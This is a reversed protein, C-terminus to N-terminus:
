DDARPPRPALHLHLRRIQRDTAVLDRELTVRPPDGVPYACSPCQWLGPRLEVACRPCHGRSRAPGRAGAIERLAAAAVLWLGHGVAALAVLGFALLFLTWLLEGM